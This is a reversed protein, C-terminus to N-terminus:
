SRSEEVAKELEERGWPTDLHGHYNLRDYVEVIRERGARQLELWEMMDRDVSVGSAGSKRLLDLDAQWRECLNSPVTKIAQEIQKCRAM